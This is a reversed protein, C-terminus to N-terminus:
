MGKHLSLLCSTVDTMRINCEKSDVYCAVRKPHVFLLKRRTQKHIILQVHLAKINYKRQLTRRKHKHTTNFMKKQKRIEWLGRKKAKPQTNSSRNHKVKKNNPANNQLNDRAYRHNFCIDPQQQNCRM